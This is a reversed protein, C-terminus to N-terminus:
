DATHMYARLLHRSFSFTLPNENQTFAYPLSHFLGLIDIDETFLDYGGSLLFLLYMQSPDKAMMKDAEWGRLLVVLLM